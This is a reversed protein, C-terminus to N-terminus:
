LPSVTTLWPPSRSRSTPPSRRPTWASRSRGSCPRRVQLEGEGVRGVVPLVVEAEHVALEGDVAARVLGGEAQAHQLGDVLVRAVVEGRLVHPFAHDARHGDLDLVRDELALGLVLQAVVLDAAPDRLLDLLLGERPQVLVLSSAFFSTSFILDLSRMRLSSEVMLFCARSIARLTSIWMGLSVSQLIWKSSRFSLRRSSVLMKRVSPSEAPPGM